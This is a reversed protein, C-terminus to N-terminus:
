SVFKKTHKSDRIWRPYLTLIAFTMVLVIAPSQLIDESLAGIELSILLCFIYNENNKLLLFNCYVLLLCVILTTVLGSQFILYAYSGDITGWFNFQDIKLYSPYWSIPIRHYYWNWMYMRNSLLNNLLYYFNSNDYNKSFLYSMYTLLIPCVTGFFKIIFTFFKNKLKFIGIFLIFFLFVIIVTRDGTIFNNLLIFFVIFIMKEYFYRTERKLTFLELVYFLSILLTFLGLTNENAFGFSIVGDMVNRMPSLGVLSLLFTIVLCVMNALYYGKIVQWPTCNIFALAVLIPVSFFSNFKTITWILLIVGVFIIDKSDIGKLLLNIIALLFFLVGILLSINGFYLGHSNSYTNLVSLSALVAVVVYYYNSNRQLENNM